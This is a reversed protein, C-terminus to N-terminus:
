KGITTDGITLIYKHVEADGRSRFGEVCFAVEYMKGQKVSTMGVNEWAKFHESVSITGGTKKETRVSWYQQFTKRGQISPQETRTTEYIDYTGGDIEVTGKSKAGPPRWSGWSEVIYYEILPDVTWGYVCLYSNGEPNYSCSYVLSIDGLEDHTKKSDLKKGTRFLVNNINSWKCEFTGGGKLTMSVDGRDKWCEYDFGDHVGSKNGTIIETGAFAPYVILFTLIVSKIIFNPTKM